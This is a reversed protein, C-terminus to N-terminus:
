YDVFKSLLEQATNLDLAMLVLDDAWLLHSLPTDGLLPVNGFNLLPTADQMYSKFFEPSLTHGQETGKGIGIKRTLKNNLKLQCTSNEYMNRITSFVNGRIGM